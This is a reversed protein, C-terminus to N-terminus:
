GIIKCVCQSQTSNSCKSKRQQTYPMYEPPKKSDEAILTGNDSDLPTSRGGFNSLIRIKRRLGNNPSLCFTRKIEITKKPQM